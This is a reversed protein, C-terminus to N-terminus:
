VTIKKPPQGFFGQPRVLLFIILILFAIAPQWKTSIQWAGFHQAMGLLLGGLYVGWVTGVGGVIVAVTAYLLANFGMLPHIDTDFSVLIAGVAATGSGLAFVIAIIRETRLGIIVTLEPDEAVARIDRGLRSHRFVFATLSVLLLSVIVISIQVGTIRAGLINVGETVSTSRVSRAHHGFILTILNQVAILLGLAAILLVLPSGGSRRIPRYIWRNMALGLGSTAAVSIAVALPAPIKCISYSVFFFYAGATFVAGHAFHFFRATSYIISFGLAVLAHVSGAVIGNVFTQLM